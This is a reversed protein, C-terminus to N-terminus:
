ELYYRVDAPRSAAVPWFQQTIAAVPPSYYLHSNGQLSLINQSNQAVLNGKIIVNGGTNIMNGMVVMHADIESNGSLNLNGTVYLGLDNTVMNATKINSNNSLTVNGFVLIAGYGIYNYTPNGSFTLNGLIIIIRPNTLSGLTDTTSANAILTYDGNHIDGPKALSLFANPNISPISVTVGSTKAPLGNPNVPPTVYANGTLSATNYSTLFGKIYSNGSLSPTNNVQVNANGTTADIVANNGMNLNGGTLIAYNEFSPITPPAHFYAVITKPKVTNTDVNNCYAYVTAKVM